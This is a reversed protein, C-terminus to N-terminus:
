LEDKIGRRARKIKLRASVYGYKPAAVFVAIFITSGEIWGDVPNHYMGIALSIFAAVLLIIVTQDEFSEWFLEMM